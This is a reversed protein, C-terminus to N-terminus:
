KHGTVELIHNVLDWAENDDQLSRRYAIKLAKSILAPKVELKEAYAKISEKLGSKLEECDALLQCGEEFFKKLELKDNSDLNDLTAM